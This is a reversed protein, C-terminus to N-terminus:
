AFRYPLTYEVGLRNQPLSPLVTRLFIFLLGALVLPEPVASGRKRGFHNAGDMGGWKVTIM